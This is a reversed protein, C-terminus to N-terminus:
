NLSKENMILKPDSLNEAMGEHWTSQNPDLPSGFPSATGGPSLSVSDDDTSLVSTRGRGKVASGDKAGPRDRSLLGSKGTNKERNKEESLVKAEKETEALREAVRENRMM